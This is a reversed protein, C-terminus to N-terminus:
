SPPTSRSCGIPAHAFRSLLVLRRWSDFYVVVTAPSPSHSTPSQTERLRYSSHACLVFFGATERARAPKELEAVRM